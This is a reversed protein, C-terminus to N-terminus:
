IDIHEMVQPVQDSRIAGGNGEQDFALFAQYCKEEIERALEAETIPADKDSGSDKDSDSM